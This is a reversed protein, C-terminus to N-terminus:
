SRGVNLLNLRTSGNIQILIRGQSDATMKTPKGDIAFQYTQGPSFNQFLVSASGESKIQTKLNNGQWNLNVEFASPTKSTLSFFKKEGNRRYYNLMAGVRGVGFAENSSLSFDKGSLSFLEKTLTIKYNQGRLLYNFSTGNLQTPMNPELGIRNWKPRVGYIDRYLATISTSIGALIDDGLGLQTTRSYRQSSLGDKKYQELLKNIYKLSIGKDYKVYARVGLYGWSPFIDGNEYKPFPWNGRHVEEQRFSDFCLPWHFLNENSTRQEIQRLIKAIRQPDDCIGFGIASFNVPTVLNDGHISGDKDKWYVYQSKEESWFGGDQITKNFAVKLKDALITYYTAKQLDGMVKECSSWLKLAEYMQANVFANEYGAWVIDLWDSAKKENISSNVMEFIDNHNEDRKILWELAKECSLKHSKLWKLDGSLDFQESTNIVYGTQSDVTSGWVAEYYGTKANYTGKAEDGPIDHWRSLVRGDDLIALDREQNLTQAMNNQYNSDMLALGTQAFFPEHLCKWNTLWGNGGVVNNDVVGYRGTTNLLERVSAADIGVLNGRSYTEFYDVFDLKLKVKSVGSSVVEQPKFVDRKGHVFRSLNHNQSLEQSSLNQTFSETQDSKRSFKSSLFGGKAVISPSIKFGDGTEDNWFTVGATHVGYTDDTNKLYKWWVMGGNDLIGGKWNAQQSFNWEPMSSSKLSGNKSYSRTIEWVISRGTNTFDWTERVQFDKTGYIIGTVHTGKSDTIIKTASGFQMSTFAEGNPMEIGTYVGKAALVNKGRILVESIICGKKCDVLISLTKEPNSLRIQSKNQSRAHLCHISLLAIFLIKWHLSSAHKPM